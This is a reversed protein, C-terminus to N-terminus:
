VRLRNLEERLVQWNPLVSGLLEYYDASHNMERLHCLEHLIVYNILQKPVYILKLNLTIKGQPSASGWRSKMERIKLDPYAIGFPEVLPYCKDLQQSFVFGARTRYWKKILKQKQDYDQPNRTHLYLRGRYFRVREINDQVVKLRYQKGLYYYTEGSRYQPIRANTTTNQAYLRQQKTIWKAKKQVRDIIANLDSTMPADVIVSTDPHVDISMTERDSRVLEFEIIQTGYEVKYRGQPYKTM